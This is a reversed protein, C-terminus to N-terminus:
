NLRSEVFEVVAKYEDGSKDSDKYAKQILEEGSGYFCGVRWMNNSRTWTFYRGSSWWNKFVIYDRMSEIRADGCVEAGGHVWANGCVEANSFVKANDFVEAISYVEADGCVSANGYVSAYDYVSANGRVMADGFVSADGYVKANGCVSAYDYVSANGCVKANGFAMADDHVMANGYVMAKEYVWCDNDQSLNREHEIFGGKDGEHVDSFDKLAEIRYLTIGNVNITEDTLKYKEMINRKKLKVLGIYLFLRIIVYLKKKFFTLFYFVLRRELCIHIIAPLM